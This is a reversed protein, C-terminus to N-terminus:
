QFIASYLFSFFYPVQQMSSTSGLGMIGFGIGGTVSLAWQMYLVATCFFFYFLLLELIKHAGSNFKPIFYTIM